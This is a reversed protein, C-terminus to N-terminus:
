KYKPAAAAKRAPRRAAKPVSYGAADETARGTRGLARRRLLETRRTDYAADKVVPARIVRGDVSLRQNRSNFRNVEDFENYKINKIRALADTSRRINRQVSDQKDAFRPDYVYRQNDELIKQFRAAQAETRAKTRWGLGGIGRMPAQVGNLQDINGQVNTRGKADISADALATQQFQSMRGVGKYDDRAAKLQDANLGRRYEQKRIEGGNAFDSGRIGNAAGTARALIESDYQEKIQQLRLAERRRAQAAGTFGAVERVWTEHGGAAFDQIKQAANNAADRRGAFM